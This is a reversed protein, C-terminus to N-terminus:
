FNIKNFGKLFQKRKYYYFPEDDGAIINGNSRKAIEQAVKSWYKEPVYNM